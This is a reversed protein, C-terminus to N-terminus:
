GRIGYLAFTSNTQWNVGNAELTISTVATTQQYLGSGLIIHGSGNNDTGSLARLTKFKNTDAYDLIDIIGAGFVSATASNSAMSMNDQIYVETTAAYASATAGDGFLRHLPYASTYGNMRLRLTAFASGTASNRGIYRIQLHKYTDPISSFTITGSSGTGNATAISDFISDVFTTNGALMDYYRNLSKFGGANSMKYIQNNNAM